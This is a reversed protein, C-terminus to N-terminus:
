AEQHVLTPRGPLSSHAWGPQASRRPKAAVAVAFLVWIVPMVPDPTAVVLAVLMVAIAFLSREYLEFRAYRRPRFLPRILQLLFFCFLLVGPIGVNGMLSCAFSSARVSGWGAGFYYSDHSTQLALTNWLTRERYSDSNVKDVFVGNFVKAVTQPADTLTFLPVAVAVVGLLLLLKVPAAGQRGLTHRAYLFMGGVAITALCCYGVTSVTLLLAVFLLVFSVAHQRRIRHTAMQWSLLALGTGLYFAAESAETLTSNLRWVGSVKYADYIVHATNTYLIASPFPVHLTANALQYMSFCAICVAARVYWDVARRLQERSSHIALLFVTFAALLYTTQTFNTIGIALHNNLGNHSNSVLIGHFLFPNLVASLVAYGVFMCLAVFAGRNLGPVARTGLKGTLIKLPLCLMMAFLWPAIPSDGVNLASAADFISTFLIIPLLEGRTRWWLFAILVLLPLTSATM